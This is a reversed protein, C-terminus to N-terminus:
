DARFPTPTPEDLARLDPAASGRPQVLGALALAMMGVVINLRRRSCFRAHIGRQPILYLGAALTGLIAGAANSGYLLGVQGGLSSDRFTSAKLVLPLTAGM